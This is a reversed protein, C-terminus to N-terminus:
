FDFANRSAMHERALDIPKQIDFGAFQAQVDGLNSFTTMDESREAGQRIEVGFGYTRDRSNQVPRMVILNDEYNSFSIGDATRHWDPNMFVFEAIATKVRNYDYAEEHTYGDAIQIFGEDEILGSVFEAATVGNELAHRPADGGPHLSQAVESYPIGARSQLLLNVDAAFRFFDTKHNQDSKQAEM